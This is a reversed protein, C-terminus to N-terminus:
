NSDIYEEEREADGVLGEVVVLETHGGSVLLAVHPFPPPDKELLPAM